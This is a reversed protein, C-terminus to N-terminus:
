PPGVPKATRADFYVRRTVGQSDMLTLRYIPARNLFLLQAEILRGSVVKLAARLIAALPLTSGSDLADRALTQDNTAPGTPPLGPDEQGGRDPGKAQDRGQGNGPGNPPRSGGAPERPGSGAPGAASGGGSGNPGSGNGNGPDAMVLTPLLVALLIASSALRRMRQFYPTEGSSDSVFDTM